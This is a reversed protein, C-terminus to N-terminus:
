LTLIAEWRAPGTFDRRYLQLECTKSRTVPRQLSLIELSHSSLIQFRGLPSTCPIVLDMDWEGQKEQARNNCGLTLHTCTKLALTAFPSSLQADM